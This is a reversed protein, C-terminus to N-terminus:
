VNPQIISAKSKAYIYKLPSTVKGCHECLSQSFDLLSLSRLTSQPMM